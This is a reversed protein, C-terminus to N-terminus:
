SLLALAKEFRVASTHDKLVRAKAKSAIKKREEENELYFRILERLEDRNKFTIIEKGTELVLNMDPKHNSLVFVGAGSYIIPKDDPCRVSNGGNILNIFIKTAKAIKLKKLGFVGESSIVKSLVWPDKSTEWRPGWIKFDVHDQTLGSFFKERYGYHGGIFAVDSSYPSIEETKLSQGYFSPDYSHPMFVVNNFGFLNLEDRFYTDKTIFLDFAAVKKFDIPDQKSGYPNDGYFCITKCNSNEIIELITESFINGARFIFLVDFNSAKKVLQRNMWPIWNRRFNKYVFSHNRYFFPVVEHGLSRIGNFYDYSESAGPEFYEKPACYLVRM